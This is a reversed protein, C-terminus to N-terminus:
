EEDMYSIDLDIEKYLVDYVKRLLKCVAQESTLFDMVVSEMLINKYEKQLEETKDDYDETDSLIQLQLNRRRFVNLQSYLDPREKLKALDRCYNQYSETRKLLATLERTRDLIETLEPFIEEEKEETGMPRRREAQDAHGNVACGCRDRICMESGM